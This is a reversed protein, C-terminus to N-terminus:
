QKETPSLRSILLSLGYFMAAAMLFLIFGSLEHFREAAQQGFKYSLVGTFAVRFVNVVMTIPLAAIIILLRQWLIKTKFYAFLTGVTLLSVLSRIGSCAEAVNLATNPLHIINGELLVPIGLLELSQAAWHSVFLQMPFTIKQMIISPLPIMLFLFIISFAVAKLHEKGSLFLVLGAIVVPISLRQTFYEAALRGSLLLILGFALLLLGWNSPSSPSMLRDRKVWVLYLSIPLVLFGHSFDPLDIWDAVLPRLVPYYLLIVLAAVIIAKIVAQTNERFRNPMSVPRFSTSSM